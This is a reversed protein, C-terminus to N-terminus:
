IDLHSIISYIGYYWLCYLNYRLFLEYEYVNCQDFYCKYFPVFDGFQLLLYTTDEERIMTSFTMLNVFQFCQHSTPFSQVCLSQLCFINNILVIINILTFLKDNTAISMLPYISFSVCIWTDKSLLLFMWQFSIDM